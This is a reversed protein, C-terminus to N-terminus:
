VVLLSRTSVLRSTSSTRTSSDQLDQPLKTKNTQSVEGCSTSTCVVRLIVPLSVLVASHHPLVIYM